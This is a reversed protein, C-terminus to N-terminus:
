RVAAIPMKLPSLEIRRYFVEAGESQILIKGRSQSLNSGENVLVGNVIHKVTNGEAIVEVVNWEGSPKEADKYKLVRNKGVRRAKGDDTTKEPTNLTVGDILWFDGTDGEQVQCEFSKPWVKDPGTVHYLIGSDRVAKERPPWKATGWKFEVILHYNEYEQETMIYGFTKGLIHIVGNEVKFIGDPDNNKGENRLFTYWGKLDKGNFLPIAKGAKPAKPVAVGTLGICLIALVVAMRFWRNTQTM